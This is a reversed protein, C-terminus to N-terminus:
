CHMTGARVTNCKRSKGPAVGLPPGLEPSCWLHNLDIFTFDSMSARAEHNNCMNRKWPAVGLSPGLAPQVMTVASSDRASSLGTAGSRTRKTHDKHECTHRHRHTHIYTHIYTHIHTNTDDAM